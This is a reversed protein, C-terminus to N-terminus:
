GQRRRLARSTMEALCLGYVWHAALMAQPRGARDRPPMAMIGLAPVWGAYSVGWIASGFLLGRALPPVRPAVRGEGAGYIAGAAAGFGLHLGSALVDQLVPHADVGAAKLAHATIKEPPMEGMLGARRAGFMLASMALTAM